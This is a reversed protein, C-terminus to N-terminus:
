GLRVSLKTFTWYIKIRIVAKERIKLLYRVSQHSALNADISIDKGLYASPSKLYSAFMKPLYVM